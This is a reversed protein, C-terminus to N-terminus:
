KALWFDQWSEGEPLKDGPKWGAQRLREEWEDLREILNILVAQIIRDDGKTKDILFYLIELAKQREEKDQKRLRAAELEDTM